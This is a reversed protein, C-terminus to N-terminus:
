IRIETLIAPSTGVGHDIGLEVHAHRQIDFRDATLESRSTIRLWRWFGSGSGQSPFLLSRLQPVSHDLALLARAQIESSHFSRM